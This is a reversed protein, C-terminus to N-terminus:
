QRLSVRMRLGQSGVVDHLLALTDASHSFRVIFSLCFTLKGLPTPARVICLSPMPLFPACIHM